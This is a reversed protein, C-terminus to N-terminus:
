PLVAPGINASLITRYYTKSVPIQRVGPHSLTVAARGRGHNLVTVKSLNVFYSRHCRLIDTGELMREMQQTRCRLMYSALRGELEYYIRVYNDQSEIYYISDQDISLKMNGFTDYLDVMRGTPSIQSKALLNRLMLIEDRQSRYGTYLVFLSYPILLILFVCVTTKLVVAGTVPIDAAFFTFLIYFASLSIFEAATVALYTWADTERRKQIAAIAIKSVVMVAIAVLFYGSTLLASNWSRFGFWLTASFPRYILLYMVSFAFVFVVSEMMFKKRLLFKPVNFRSM